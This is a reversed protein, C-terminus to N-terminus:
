CINVNNPRKITKGQTKNFCFYHHIQESGTWKPSIVGDDHKKRQQAKAKDDVTLPRWNLISINLLKAIGTM